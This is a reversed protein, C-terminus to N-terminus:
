QYIKGRLKRHYGIAFRHAEDMIRKILNRDRLLEKSREDLNLIRFELNKRAPGKAVAAIPIEFHLGKLIAEGMNLHGIGGDLLILDPKPWNNQFRRLLVERMMGVDNAGQITKIRFKRYESKNPQWNEGGFASGGRASFVVMSGTAYQGSINSIDYAEM